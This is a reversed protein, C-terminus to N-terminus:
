REAGKKVVSGPLMLSRIYLLLRDSLFGLLGIVIIAVIVLDFRLGYEATTIVYGLGTNSGMLEAAFLVIFSLAVGIRLGSFVAPLSAPLCVQFLVRLSGAGMSKAAWILRIPVSAMGELTAVFAPFFTAIAIIAFKSGHGMGFAIIFIPLFAIKPVPNLAIIIPEVLDRVPRVSGGILGLIVGATAGILFGIAARLLSVASQRFLEGSQAFEIFARSIQVPPPLYEPLMQEYGALQWLVLLAAPVILGSLTSGFTRM